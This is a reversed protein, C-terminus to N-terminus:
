SKLRIPDRLDGKPKWHNGTPTLWPAEKSTGELQGESKRAVRRHEVRHTTTYNSGLELVRECFYGVCVSTHAKM